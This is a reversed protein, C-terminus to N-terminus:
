ASKRLLHFASELLLAAGLPFSSEDIDFVPTHHGRDRDDFKAGLQFMAGPALKTMFGFDEAGLMPQPPNLVDPGAMRTAIDGIIGSIEPDNYTADYGNKIELEYDGGMARSIALARELEAFLQERIDSDYSRITGSIEISAPIVNSAIGCHITGISIIAPKVPDIRRARIGFIANIIQALMFVPDTGLHPSAGHGGDGRIIAHFADHAAMAYGSCVEIKGSEMGSDMHLALVNDVGVLARDDIMRMAGSQGEEDQNEECPQFLLRIQGPPRESEPIESLMTAVGLLIATHADHGCAHMVNPTQSRYAVDNEEDIPLADMDARIGVVPRGEGIRAVVGTKGVGTEAEFGLENLTEAVKRATRFEEFGLEPHMHFDRRWAVIRDALSRAHELRDPHYTM